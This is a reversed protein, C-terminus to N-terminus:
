RLGKLARVFERRAQQATKAYIEYNPEHAALNRQRHLQWVIKENPFRKAVRNLLKAAGAKKDKPYLTGVAAVFAKHADMLAHNPDLGKTRSIAKTAKDLQNRSLKPKRSLHWVALVLVAVLVLSGWIIEM